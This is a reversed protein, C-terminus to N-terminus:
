VSDKIQKIYLEGSNKKELAKVILDVQKQLASRTFDPDMVIRGLTRIDSLVYTLEESSFDFSKRM